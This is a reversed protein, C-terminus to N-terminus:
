MYNMGLTWQCLRNGRQLPKEEKADEGKRGKVQLMKNPQSLAESRQIFFCAEREAAVIHSCLGAYHLPM